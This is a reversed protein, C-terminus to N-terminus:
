LDRRTVLGAALARRVLEARKRNQPLDPVELRQFLTKLHTRVAEVSLQLEQAVERNSAPVAVPDEGLFPRCLAVLVQRQAPTIQVADIADVAPITDAPAALPARFVLETRGFRLRDGPNLRRRGALREGNVFSGNRSLGDDVLTWSDGARELRAHVRSAEEDWSLVLDLGPQRGVIVAEGSLELIRQAGRGERYLLHAAGTREAAVQEALESPTFDHRGLGSM